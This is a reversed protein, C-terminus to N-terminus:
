QGKRLPHVEHCKRCFATRAAGEEESLIFNPHAEGKRHCAPCAVVQVWFHHILTLSKGDPGRTRPLSALRRGVAKQLERLPAQLDELESATLEASTVACAIPDVDVGIANAGLRAAEVVSTGGGVFPDLVTLGSLSATEYYAKWFDATPPQIAGVLLARFSCGLRRAFWKHIQYIPRPRRGERAAFRVLEGFPLEGAELLTRKPLQALDMTAFEPRLSRRGWPSVVEPTAGSARVPNSPIAAAPPAPKTTAGRSGEPSGEVYCM